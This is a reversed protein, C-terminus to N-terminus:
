AAPMGLVSLRGGCALNGPVQASRPYEVAVAEEAPQLEGKRWHVWTIAEGARQRELASPAMEMYQFYANGLRIAQTNRLVRSTPLRNSDPHRKDLGSNGSLAESM